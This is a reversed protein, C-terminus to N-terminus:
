LCPEIQATGSRLELAVCLILTRAHRWNLLSIRIVLVTIDRTTAIARVHSSFTNIGICEVTRNTTSPHVVSLMVDLGGLGGM